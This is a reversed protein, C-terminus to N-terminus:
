RIGGAGFSRSLILLEVLSKRFNDRAKKVATEEPIPTHVKGARCRALAEQMKQKIM